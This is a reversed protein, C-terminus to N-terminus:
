VKDWLNLVQCCLCLLQCTKASLDWLQLVRAVASVLIGTDNSYKLATSFLAPNVRTLTRESYFRLFRILLTVFWLSSVGHWLCFCQLCVSERQPSVDPLLVSVTVTEKDQKLRFVSIVGCCAEAWFVGWCLGRSTEAGPPRTNWLDSVRSGGPILVCIAARATAVTVARAVTVIYHHTPNMQM